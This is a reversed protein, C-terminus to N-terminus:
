RSAPPTSAGRLPITVTVSRGDAVRVTRVAASYGSLTVRIQRSGASLRRISLPTTGWGIGDVTVRAGPPDSLIVLSPASAESAVIPLPATVVDASPQKARAASQPRATEARDTSLSTADRGSTAVLPPERAPVSALLASEPAALSDEQHHAATSVPAPSPVTAIPPASATDPTIAADPAVASTAMGADRSASTSPPWVVVAFAVAILLGAALLLLSGLKIGQPAPVTASSPNVVTPQSVRELEALAIARDLGVAEAYASVEGRQYTTGPIVSLDGHELSDLHRRPIKTQQAIQQLSLGRRERARRLFDGFAAQDGDVARSLPRTEQSRFSLNQSSAPM